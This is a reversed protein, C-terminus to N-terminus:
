VQESDPHREAAFRMGLIIQSLKRSIRLQNVHSVRERAYRIHHINREMKGENLRLRSAVIDAIRTRDRCAFNCSFQAQGFFPEGRLFELLRNLGRSRVTNQIYTLQLFYKRNRRYGNRKIFSDCGIFLELGCGSPSNRKDPLPHTELYHATQM